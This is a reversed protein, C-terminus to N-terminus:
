AVFGCQGIHPQSFSALHLPGCVMHNWQYLIGLVPVDQLCLLDTVALTLPPPLSVAM